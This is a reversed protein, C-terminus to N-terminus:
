KLLLMRKVSQYEGAHIQAFYFGSGQTGADWQLDYSGAPQDQDILPETVEQGLLNFIRITVHCNKPIDYRLTTVPNFPNPYNQHLVMQDPVCKLKEIATKDTNLEGLMINESVTGLTDNFVKINMLLSDGSISFSADACIIRTAEFLGHDPHGPTNFFTLQTKEARDTNMIWYETKLTAEAETSDFEMGQSSIWIIKQGDPTFHAHEDWVRPDDNFRTLTSDYINLTYIDAHTQHQGHANMCFLVLSDNNTWGHSECWTFDGLVGGPRYCITNQLIPNGYDLVFDSINLQWLGWNGRNGIDALGDYAQAWLVKTGDHSFHAHLIGTVKTTDWFSKKTPLATLRHFSTDDLDVCWLDNDFGKGPSGIYEDYFYTTWARNENGGLASDKQAQFIVYRGGPHWTPNGIHRQPINSKDRTVFHIDTKSFNSVALDFYEDAGIYDFAIKGTKSWDTRTGFNQWITQPEIRPTQPFLWGATMLVIMLSQITKKM